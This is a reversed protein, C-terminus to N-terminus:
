IEFSEGQGKKKREGRGKKGGKNKKEEVMM